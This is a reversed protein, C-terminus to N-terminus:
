SRIPITPLWGTMPVQYPWQVYYPQYRPPMPTTITKGGPMSGTGGQTASYPLPWPFQRSQPPIQISVRGSGSSYGGVCGGGAGGSSTSNPPLFPNSM